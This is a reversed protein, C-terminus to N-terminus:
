VTWRNVNGTTHIACLALLIRITSMKVVPAFTEFYHIGYQQRCGLAVLRVKPRGNKIRFVYKSPLIQMSPEQPVLSWTNNRLLCDHEKDIGPTWFDVNTPDTASKYSTPLVRASLAVNVCDKWWGPQKSVRTSRRQETVLTNDDHNTDSSVNDDNENDNNSENEETGSQNQEKRQVETASEFRIQQEGGRNSTGDSSM